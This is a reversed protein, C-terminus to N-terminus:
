APALQEAALSLDLGEKRVRLDYYLLTLTGLQIPFYAIQALSTVIQAVAPGAPAPLPATIVAVVTSPVTFVFPPVVKSVDVSAAPVAWACSAGNLSVPTVM